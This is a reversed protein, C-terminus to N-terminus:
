EIRIRKLASQQYYASGAAPSAPEVAPAPSVFAPAEPCLPLEKVNDVPAMMAMATTALTTHKPPLLYLV